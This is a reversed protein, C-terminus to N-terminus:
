YPPPIGGYTDSGMGRWVLVGIGALMAVIITYIPWKQWFGMIKNFTTLDEGTLDDDIKDGMDSFPKDYIMWVMGTVFIIFLVTLIVKLAQAAGKKGYFLM